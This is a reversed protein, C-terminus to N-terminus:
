IRSFEYLTRGKRRNEQITFHEELLWKYKKLALAFKKGTMIIEDKHEPEKVFSAIYNNIESATGKAQTIEENECMQLIAEPIDEDYKKMRYLLHEYLGEIPLGHQKGVHELSQVVRDFGDLRLSTNYHNEQIDQAIYSALQFLAGRFKPLMADFKMSQATSNEYKEPTDCWIKLSRSNLDDRLPLNEVTTIMQLAHLNLVIMDNDTYLRVAKYSSGSSARCILNSIETSISTVNDYVLVLENQAMSALSREDKPLSSSLGPTDDILRKLRHASTTKGSGELGELIVVPLATHPEVLPVLLAAILLMLDMNSVTYFESLKKLVHIDSQEINMPTNTERIFYVGEGPQSHISWGQDNLTAFREAGMLDIWVRNYKDVAVRTNPAITIGEDRLDDAQARIDDFARAVITEPVHSHPFVERKAYRKLASDSLSVIGTDRKGWYVEGSTGPLCILHEEIWEKLEDLQSHKHHSKETINQDTLFENYNGDYALVTCFKEKEVMTASSFQRRLKASFIAAVYGFECGNHAIGAKSKSNKYQFNVCDGTGEKCTTSPSTKFGLEQLIRKWSAIQKWEELSIPDSQQEVPTNEEKEEDINGELNAILFEELEKPAKPIGKGQSFKVAEPNLVYKGEYRESPPTAVLHRQIIIDFVVGENDIHVVPKKTNIKKEWSSSTTFWWHGGGHHKPMHPINQGPSFVTIPPIDKENMFQSLFKQVADVEEPTDADIVFVRSQPSPVVAVGIGDPAADLVNDLVKSDEYAPRTSTILNSLPAKAKKGTKDSLGKIPVVGLGASSLARATDAVSHDNSFLDMIDMANNESLSQM